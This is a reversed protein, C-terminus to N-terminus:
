GIKWFKFLKKLISLKAPISFIERASEDSGAGVEVVKCFENGKYEKYIKKWRYFLYYAAGSTGWEGIGACIFLYHDDHYPNKMKLVIGCDNNTISFSRGDINFCRIGNPSFGFSYFLQSQLNEIDFTKINSDSSGFCFFTGNWNNIIKDDTVVKISKTAFKSIAASIYSVVRIVNVGLIDDEGAINIIARGGRGFFNKIYRNPNRRVPNTYPDVVAFINEGSFVYKGFFKGFRWKDIANPIFYILQKVIEISFKILFNDM